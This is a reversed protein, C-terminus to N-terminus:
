WILRPKEGNLLEQIHVRARSNTDQPLADPDFFEVAEIELADRKTGSWEWKKCEFLTVHDFRSINFNAYTHFQHMDGINKIACEELLEREAAAELTERREVGGGPLHWGQIYTHKVLLIKGEDNRVLVRVGLTTGRTILSIWFFVFRRLGVPLIAFLKILYKMHEHLLVLDDNRYYM